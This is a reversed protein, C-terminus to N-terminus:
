SAPFVRAIRADMEGAEVARGGAATLAHVTLVNGEVDLTVTGPTLTISNALATIALDGQLPTRVRVVEPEIPLRPHLVIRVVEINAVVIARLLWPLYRLFRPAARVAESVAEVDRNLWAVLAAGAVGLGLTLPTYHSSLVLWLGLGAVFVTLVDLARSPAAWATRSRRM